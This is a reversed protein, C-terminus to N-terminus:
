QNNRSFTGYLSFHTLKTLYKANEIITPVSEDTIENVINM